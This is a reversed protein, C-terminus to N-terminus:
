TTIWYKVKHAVFEPGNDSRIRESMGHCLVLWDLIDVVKLSSISATTYLMLCQRTFEAMVAMIRVEQGNETRDETLDGYYNIHTARQKM